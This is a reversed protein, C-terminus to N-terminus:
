GILLEIAKNFDIESFPILEYSKVLDIEHISDFDAFVDTVTQSTIAKQRVFGKGLVLGIKSYDNYFYEQLLPIIENEFSHKFDKKLFYAHGLTYNRDLLVEIRANIKEMIEARPYDPLEEKKIIDSNPMMETFSFRRRLATDLAEISRDATNMTGIIYLNSPVGFKEKSYPLTVRLEEEKGLRKSAEILTILEGFIQSVNGRNIEDIILVYPKPPLLVKKNNSKSESKIKENIYNLVAWFASSNCGGIVARFEKDINKIVSLDPFAAQLEKARSYSVIYEKANKSYIPKLKLNGKETVEVINLGKNSTQTSLKLPNNNELGKYAEELLSNWADDFYFSIQSSDGRFHNQQAQNIINKFIGNKVEYIISKNGDSDEEIVPKIGEIFDEYSMSQHFTIFAIQGENVLREYEAKILKRDQCLNFDSNAIEIAKNITHYTKGTGPPGYLIQNLPINKMQHATKIPLYQSPINLSQFVKYRFEKQFVLTQFDIKNKNRFGSLTTRALEQQSAEILEPLFNHLNDIQKLRITYVKPKAKFEDIYDNSKYKSLYKFGDNELRWVYRQGITFILRNDNKNYNFYYQKSNPELDLAEVLKDMVEFYPIIHEKYFSLIQQLEDSTKTAENNTMYYVIRFIFDQTLLNFYPDSYLTENELLSKYNEIYEVDELIFAKIQQALSNFLVFSQDDGKKIGKLNLVQFLAKAIDYKYFIFNQPYQLMLYISIIRIDQYHSNMKNREPFKQQLMRLLQDFSQHFLAIREVLNQNLDFLTEFAAVTEIPFHMLFEELMRIPYYNGSAWLNNSGGISFANRIMSAKDAVDWNWLPYVQNFIEWKYIEDKSLETGLSYNTKYNSWFQTLQDRNLKEM